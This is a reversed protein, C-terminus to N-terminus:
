SWRRWTLLIDPLGEENEGNTRDAEVFGHRAYFRRAGANAEFTWLTLGEPWLAKAAGLLATGVGRGRAATEVFLGAVFGEGDVSLFGAVVGDREGVLVDCTAMVHERFQRAVDEPPHVRPMWDTADVWDNFIGVCAVADEARVTRVTLDSLM